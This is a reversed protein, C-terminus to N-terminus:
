LSTGFWGWLSGGSQLSPELWYILYFLGVSFYIIAFVRGVQVLVPCILSTNPALKDM